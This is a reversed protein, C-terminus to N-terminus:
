LFLSFIAVRVFVTFLNGKCSCHFFQGSSFVSFIARVRVTIFLSARAGAINSNQGDSTTIFLNYTQRTEYDLPRQATVSAIGNVNQVSFDESNTGSLIYM